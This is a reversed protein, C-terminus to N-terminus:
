LFLRKHLLYREFILILVKLVFIKCCYNKSFFAFIWKSLPFLWQLPIMGMMFLYIFLEEVVQKLDPESYLSFKNLCNKIIKYYNYLITLYAKCNILSFVRGLPITM